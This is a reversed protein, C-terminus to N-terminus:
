KAAWSKPTPKTSENAKGALRQVVWELGELNDRLRLEADVDDHNLIGVPGKWGSEQIVKMLAPDLKGQGVPIIKAGIQDGKEVRGNINLALLYPKMTELLAAFQEIHSHGHHQNYVIGVNTIGQSHLKKIIAIQNTPEGFWGGHNYLGVKCGQVAAATAIEGIRKAEAAVRSEQEEPNKLPGGGGMVWLQPRVNHRKFLALAQKGEENLQTPFWWGLLEIKHQKLATLERDWQPIHEARYDYVFRHLGIRELMAAREEPSRKKSDFPVICWAFLNSRAFLQYGEAASSSVAVLLLCSLLLLKRM